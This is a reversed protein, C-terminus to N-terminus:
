RTAFLKRRTLFLLAGLGVFNIGLIVPASAEPTRIVVFEQPPGCCTQTGAVPTYFTAYSYDDGTHGAAATLWGTVANKTTTDNYATLWNFVNAQDFVAWIAFSIAGANSSPQTMLQQSLWAVKAYGDSNEAGFRGITSTRGTSSTVAWSEGVQVEDQFDDCIVFTSVGDITATYPSIYVGDLVVNSGTGTLCFNNGAPKPDCPGAIAAGPGALCFLFATSLLLIQRKM